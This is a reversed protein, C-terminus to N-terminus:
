RGLCSHANHDEATQIHVQHHSRGAQRLRSFGESAAVELRYRPALPGILCDRGGAQPRVSAHHAPDTGIIKAVLQTM